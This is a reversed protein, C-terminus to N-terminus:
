VPQQRQQLYADAIGRRFWGENNTDMDDRWDAAYWFIGEVGPMRSLKDQVLHYVRAKYAPDNGRNVSSESILIPIRLNFEKKKNWVQNVINDAAANANDGIDTYAHMCWGDVLGRVQSWMANEWRSTSIAGSKKGPSMPTTYLKIGPFAGRALELIRRLFVAFEEASDWAIGMGEEIGAIAANFQPENFFVFRKYGLGYWKGIQTDHMDGEFAREPSVKQPNWRVRVANRAPNGFAHGRHHDGDSIFFVPMNLQGMMAKFGGNEWMFSDAPGHIGSFFATRSGAPPVPAPVGPPRPTPSPSSGVALRKLILQRIRNDIPWSEIPVGDYPLPRVNQVAPMKAHRFWSHWLSEQGEGQAVAITANIVAQWTYSAAAELAENAAVPISPIRTIEAYAEEGMHPQGDVTWADTGLRFFAMGNAGRVVTVIGQRVIEGPAPRDGIAASQLVPYIPLGYIEVNDFSNNIHDEISLERGFAIPYIVPHLSNVFPIWPAVWYEFPRNNRGDLILGIHTEPATRERILEMLRAATEPDGQWRDEGNQIDLLLSKVGSLNAAAAFKEAEKEIDGAQKCKPAGWVHIELDHAAFDKVWRAIRRVGTIAKADRDKSIAGHWSAGTSTRLFVGAVNPMKERILAATDAPAKGPTDGGQLAGLFIKGDHTTTMTIEKNSRNIAGVEVTIRSQPTSLKAETVARVAPDGIIIYGRADNNATWHFALDEPQPEEGHDIRELLDALLTSLGAYRSNFYEVAAGVPYGDLLLKLYSEFVDIQPGVGPWEYSCNWVREVHSVVALAGGRPRNLMRRPLDALFPVPAIQAPRDNFTQRVFDDTLPTGGAFCAYFCAILGSLDADDSLDEGALFFKPPIPGNWQNPGPWESCVLAGQHRLQDAHGNPLSLGHSGVFLIAPTAAGGMLDTLAAKTAEPGFIGTCTWDPHQQGLQYLPNVLKGTTQATALDDGNIVGFFAAQRSRAHGADTEARAVTAAYGAYEEPTDFHIRGVAYDVDLQTQFRFPIEEPSGVLLLYYPVKRPNAPGPGVGRKGLWASKSEGVAVGEEGSYLRFLDGSQERRLAILESLADIVAPDTGEAFIVGWGASALDRVDVGAVPGLTELGGAEERHHKDRLRDLDDPLKEGLIYAALDGPTMPPLDYRGTTGDIGNFFLM